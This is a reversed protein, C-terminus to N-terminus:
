LIFRRTDPAGTKRGAVSLIQTVIADSQAKASWESSVAEECRAATSRPDQQQRRIWREMVDALSDVNGYTYLDGTLGPTIAESEPMQEYPFDHTIVPIGHKFSQLTTLGARSPVVTITTHDYIVRLEERGYVPGPLYLPVLLSSALDIIRDRDPGEGVLMVSVPVGRERVISAAVILMDLHKVPNLRIVATAVPQGLPPLKLLLERIASPDACESDIPSSSSNFIVTMRRDPYGMRIGIDKGVNAYILLQDAIRYFLIRYLRRLGAEPRHWGITWFLVGKRQSKLALGAIWTSIYKCNGLFIVVDPRRERLVAFLHRQWLFTGFEINTVTHVKDLKRPPITAISGDGISGGAVFEVELDPSDQLQRFVDLRYHQLINYVVLVRLTM